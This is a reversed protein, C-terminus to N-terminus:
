ERAWFSPNVLKSATSFSTSSSISSPLFYSLISLASQGSHCKTTEILFAYFLFHFASHIRGYKGNVGYFM